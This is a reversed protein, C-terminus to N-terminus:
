DGVGTGWSKTALTGVVADVEAENFGLELLSAAKAAVGQMELELLLM